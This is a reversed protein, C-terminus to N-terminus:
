KGIDIDVRRVAVNPLTKPDIVGNAATTIRNPSVGANVLAQRVIEARQASLGVIDRGPFAPGAYGEVAIPQLPHNRAFDAATGVTQQSQPNLTSSDNEFYISFNRSDSLWSCGGLVVLLSIATRRLRM